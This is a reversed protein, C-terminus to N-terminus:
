DFRYDSSLGASDFHDAVKGGLSHVFEEVSPQEPLGLFQEKRRGLVQVPQVCHGFHLSLPQILAEGLERVDTVVVRLAHSRKPDSVLEHPIGPTGLIGGISFRVGSTDRFRGIGDGISEFISGSVM